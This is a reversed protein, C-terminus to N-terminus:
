ERKFHQLLFAPGIIPHDDRRHATEAAGMPAASVVYSLCFRYHRLRRGCSWTGYLGRGAHPRTSGIWASGDPPM